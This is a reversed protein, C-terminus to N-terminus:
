LEFLKFGERHCLTHPQQAHPYRYAIISVAQNHVSEFPASHCRYSPLEPRIKQREVRLPLKCDNSKKSEGLLNGYSYPRNPSYPIGRSNLHGAFVLNKSNHTSRLFRQCPPEFQVRAKVIMQSYPVVEFCLHDNCTQQRRHRTSRSNGSAM